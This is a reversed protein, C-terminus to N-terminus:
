GTISARLGTIGGANPRKCSALLRTRCLLHPYKHIWPGIMAKKPGPLNQMLRSVTNRYADGWGGVAYVAAKIKSYDECVSGHRWYDDRTQHQLWTEALLPMAELRQELMAKWVEGVLLPDPVAASCNLM